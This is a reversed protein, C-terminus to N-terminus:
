IWRSYESVVFETFTGTMSITNIGPKLHLNEYNGTCLRNALSTGSYAQMKNTDIILDTAESASIVVPANDNVKITCSQAGEITYVPASITNGRNNVLVGAAGSSSAQIQFNNFKLNNIIAWFNHNEDQNVGFMIRLYVYNAVFAESVTLTLHVTGPETVVICQKSSYQFDYGAIYENTEVVGGLDTESIGFLMGGDVIEGSEITLYVDYTGPLIMAPTEMKYSNPYPLPARYIIISGQQQRIYAGKECSLTYEGNNYGWQFWDESRTMAFPLLPTACNLVISAPIHIEPVVSHKYPQVHFVVDAERFKRLRDLSFSEVITYDYVKDPENSFIVKGSSNFYEVIDDEAYVGRLGIKVTRDYGSFGLPTIIDGDRGDVEDLQVRMPPKVVPPLAQIMLGAVETSKKGNLIIFNL